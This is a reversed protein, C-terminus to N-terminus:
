WGGSGPAGKIPGVLNPTVWGGYLRGPQPVAEVGAIECGDVRAPHFSPWGAVAEFGPWPAEYWWVADRAEHLKVRLHAYHAEGKWECVTRTASREWWRRAVDDPPFYYTPAGATEVIRYGRTTQAVIIDAFRVVLRGEVPEVRPPRPYDWVSEQGPGPIEAWPPRVDGRYRWSERARAYDSPRLSM